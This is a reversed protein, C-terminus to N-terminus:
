STQQVTVQLAGSYVTVLMDHGCAACVVHAYVTPALNPALGTNIGPTMNNAQCEPCTYSVSASSSGAWSVSQSMDGLAM